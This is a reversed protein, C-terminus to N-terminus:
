GAKGLAAEVRRARRRISELREVLYLRAGRNRRQWDCDGIRPGVIQGGMECAAGPNANGGIIHLNVQVTERNSPSAAVADDGM